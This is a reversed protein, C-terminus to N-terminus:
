NTLICLMMFALVSLQPRAIDTHHAANIQESMLSSGRYPHWVRARQQLWICSLTQTMFSAWPVAAAAAVSPEVCPLIPEAPPQILATIDERDAEMAWLAAPIHLCPSEM